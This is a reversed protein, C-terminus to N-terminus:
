YENTQWKESKFIYSWFNWEIGRGRFIYFNSDHIKNGIKLVGTETFGYEDQYGICLEETYENIWIIKRNM